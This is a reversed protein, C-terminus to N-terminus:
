IYIGNRHLLVDSYQHKKILSLFNIKKEYCYKNEFIKYFNSTLSKLNKNKNINTKFRDFFNQEFIKVKDIFVKNKKLRKKLDPLFSKLFSCLNSSNSFLNLSIKKSKINFEVLINELNNSIILIKLKNKKNKKLNNLIQELFFAKFEETEYVFNKFLVISFLNSKNNIEDFLCFLIKQKDVDTNKENNLNQNKDFEFTTLNNKNSICIKKNLKEFFNLSNDNIKNFFLFFNNFNYIKFNKIKWSNCEKFKNSINLKDVINSRMNLLFNKKLLSLSSNTWHNKKKCFNFGNIKNILNNDRKNSFNLKLNNINKYFSIFNVPYIFSQYFNGFKLYKKNKLKNYINKFRKNKPYVISSLSKIKRFGNIKNFNDLNKLLM